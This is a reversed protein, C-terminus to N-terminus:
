LIPRSTLEVMPAAAPEAPFVTTIDTIMPYIMGLQTDVGADSLYSVAACLASLQGSAARLYITRNGRELLERIRGTLMETSNATSDLDITQGGRSERLWSSLLPRSLLMWGLVPSEQGSRDNLCSPCACSCTSLLRRDVASTFAERVADASDGGHEERYLELLLALEPYAGAGAGEIAQYLMGRVEAFTPERGLRQACQPVFITNIERFLRWNSVSVSSSQELYDPIFLRLLAKIQEQRVIIGLQRRVETLLQEIAQQREDASCATRIRQAIADCSALWAEPQALVYRLLAEEQATPCRTMRQALTAWFRDPENRIAEHTARMVGIGGIGIEYLWIRDTARQGFDVHLKTYSGIYRLAEVGAIEQATQKLAQALSYKFTDRLYEQFTAGGTAVDVYIRSFAELIEPRKLLEQVAEAKRKSFRYLMEIGETLWAHLTADDAVIWNAVDGPTWTQAMREADAITLLLDALNAAAFMNANHHVTLATIFAHRAATYRLQTVVREPLHLRDLSLTALDLALGETDMQYGLAYPEDHADDATFGVAGEITEAKREHFVLAYQSGLTLLRVDMPNRNQPEDSFVLLQQVLREGLSDARIAPHTPMLRYAPPLDESEARIEIATIPYGSSAHALQLEHQGKDRYDDHQTLHGTDPDCYWYAYQHDQSFRVPHIATPRFIRVKAVQDADIGALKLAREPLASVKAREDLLEGEYYDTIRVRPVSDFAVVPPVWTSGYGGRFSVNGPVTATMALSISEALPINRGPYNVRVEPLNIDSFLNDPLLDRLENRAKVGYQPADPQQLVADVRRILTLFHKLLIGEPGALLQAAAPGDLSFARAIYDKLALLVAEDASRERLFALSQPTISELDLKVDRESAQRALWDIVAYFGHIQQLFRNQTNLPLKRFTPDTLLHQNRYLYIEATSYPSLVTIVIPRTGVQRGGRGKRQVFSAINAPAGYQIVCMLSDDDYGVELASTTIILDDGPDIPKDRDSASKRRIALSESRAKGEQSLVWWCEGAQFLPCDADPGHRHECGCAPLARTGLLRPFLDRNHPPQRYLYLPVDKINRQRVPTGKQEYEQWKRRQRPRAREADEMQYLWRGVIDLSQVFGFARYRELASGAPPQPMTHLAAMTTQILTSITAVDENDTTRVFIFREAGIVQMEDDHPRVDAIHEPGIGTLEAVFQVPQAITASLGVFVLRDRENRALKGERLRAMLRRLLLAVQTGATSAQLHIEDLMVVSPACFDTTGFLYQHASSLLRRHLSETTAVLIDPPEREMVADRVYRIFPYRKGCHPCVLTLPDHTHAVLRVEAENCPQGEAGVCNAFPSRFWREQPDYVWGRMQALKKADEQSAAAKHFEAKNYLSAGSEIGITIQPLNAQTLAQNLYFLIEIFDALQNESLAVRPYICIAKVGVQNRFCRELLTRVLVPLFFAYTKGAGTGATVVVGRAGGGREDFEVARLITEFARRQFGSMSRLKPLAHTIVDVLLAAVQRYAASSNLARELIEQSAQDRRPVLRSMVTLTTDAVLRKSSSLRHANRYNDAFVIRQRVLHILRVMEAIRSRFVWAEPAAQPDPDFRLIDLREGLMQLASRLLTTREANGAPLASLPRFASLAEAGTMTVNYIGYAIQEAERQEIFTLLENLLLESIHDNSSM